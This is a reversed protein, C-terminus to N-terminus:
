LPSDVDRDKEKLLECVARVTSAGGSEPSNLEIGFGESLASGLAFYDLSTGGLDNFFDDDAGIEGTERGLAAAFAAKVAEGLEGEVDEARRPEALALTGSELAARLRRRNLKFEDGRLLPEATYVVRGIQGTLGLESLRRAVNRKIGELERETVTRCVSVLLVSTDSGLLCVGDVGPVDIRSEVRNPSLNEGNPVIVLEDARGIIRYHGGKEEALDRTAYWDGATFGGEGGLVRCAGSSSRVFLEGGEGLRFAASPLPRGVYGGDLWKPRASLEVSAIGTESMGYGNALRYGVGNFFELVEPRIFSGGSIMFSISEGFLKDRVERFALRSFLAGLPPIVALARALKLARRFKNLTKEGRQEITRMARGYVTEWFLPVAFIHTVKHRRITNLITQPSMDALHVFTRAFFAFWVYVAALGFIHYFPLFDLLKLEGRYGRKIPACRRIVYFSDRIQHYFEESSYACLKVHESTGSSMVLVEAGFEGSPEAAEGGELEAPEIRRASFSKEGIVAAAGCARLAGELTADDLRMNMLLPRYGACLIAWFCEIWEPGNPMYLGIASGREPADPLALLAAARRLVAERAEGYTTKVIRYGESREYIVNSRESFMLEFLARFSRDSAAFGKLKEAVYANVFIHGNLTDARVANVTGDARLAYGGLTM